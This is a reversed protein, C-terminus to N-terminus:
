KGTRIRERVTRNNHRGSRSSGYRRYRSRIRPSCRRSGLEPSCSLQRVTSIYYCRGLDICRYRDRCKQLFFAPRRCDSHRCAQLFINNKEFPVGGYVDHYMRIIVGAFRKTLLKQSNREYFKISHFQANQEYKADCLVGLIKATLINVFKM